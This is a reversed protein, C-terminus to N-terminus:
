IQCLVRDAILENFYTHVELVFPVCAISLVVANPNIALTEIDLILHYIPLNNSM